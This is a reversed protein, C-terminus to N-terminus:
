SVAALDIISKELVHHPCCSIQEVRKGEVIALAIIGVALRVTKGARREQWSAIQSMAVTLRLRRRPRIPSVLSRISQRLLHEDAKDLVQSLRLPCISRRGTVM